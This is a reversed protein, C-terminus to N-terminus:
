DEPHLNKRIEALTYERVMAGDKFVTTLMQEPANYADAFTHEDTYSEGDLAVICCGKQSKKWALAKPQKFINIPNGDKDEAYTAKVAIGFTDRTYPGPNTGNVKGAFQLQGYEDQCVLAMMSMSGAGMVINNAAYGQAALRRYAEDAYDPIISDGYIARLHPDLVKFGKSNVTHGVIQDLAWVTGLLELSAPIEEWEFDYDDVYYYKSDTWAGRECGVEVTVNVKFFADQFHFYLDLDGEIDNDRCYDRLWYTTYVKDKFLKEVEDAYESTLWEIKKGALVEVPNGSDGRILLTGNHAMIAAKCQPLIETVLRPYDYSDSVMSFNHNPYIQTLLRVIHTIEDGDVAANSCMVSHETSIAGNGVVEKTCDCNYYQELWMIAPVTATNYHSLLWAASAKTASEASHQGRMSFDGIMRRPDVSEDCTANVWKDVVKRYRYGMEAAVQTHWMTCSLLTEITNVLWVFNPHTNSIEIQPVGIKTRKGEPVARIELPLYGLDHLDIIKQDEYTGPGLTYTLIRNYENVVEHLPRSFFNRNFGEILYEKIFAQLGFFAVHDVDDLRSMRPTYYSVMKTLGVPYQEHHTAKYFDILLLPNYNMNKM